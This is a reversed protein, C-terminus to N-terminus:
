VVITNDDNSLEESITELKASENQQNAKSVMKEYEDKSVQFNGVAKALVEAEEVKFAGRAQAQQIASVIVRLGQQQDLSEPLQPPLEKGDPVQIFVRVAKSLEMAEELTYKGRSQAQNIAGVLTKLSNDQSMNESMNQTTSM